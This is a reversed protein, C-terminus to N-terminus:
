MEILSLSVIKFGMIVLQVHFLLICTFLTSHFQIEDSTKLCFLEGLNTKDTSGTPLWFLLSTLFGLLIVPFTLIYSSFIMKRKLHVTIILVAFGSGEEEANGALSREAEM